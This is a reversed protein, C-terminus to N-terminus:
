EGMQVRRGGTWRWGPIGWSASWPTISERGNPRCPTSEWTQGRLGKPTPNGNPDTPPMTFVGGPEAVQLHMASSDASKKVGNITTGDAVRSDLSVYGDTMHERWQMMLGPVVEAAEEIGDRATMGAGYASESRVIREAQYWEGDMTEMVQDMAKAPTLGTVVGMGTIDEINAVVRAGYNKFSSQHQRLLSKRRRNVVNSFQVGEEIPISVVAGTYRKELREINRILAKLEDHQITQVGQGLAGAMKNSIRIQADKVQALMSRAMHASFTEGDGKRVLRSLRAELQVMADDYIKKLPRTGHRAIARELRARHERM